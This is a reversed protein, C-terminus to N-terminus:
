QKHIVQSYSIGGEIRLVYVGKSLKSVDVKDGSSVSKSIHLNGLIDYVKVTESGGNALKITVFDKAPNPYAIFKTKSPADVSVLDRTVISLKISDRVMPNEKSWITLTMNGKGANYYTSFGLKFTDSVGVPVIYQYEVDPNPLCLLGSCVTYDWGVQRDVSTVKWIFTTDGPNEANNTIVFKKDFDLRNYDLNLSEYENIDFSFQAFSYSAFALLTFLLTIKKNM